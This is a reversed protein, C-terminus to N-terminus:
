AAVSAAITAYGVLGAADAGGPAAWLITTAPSWGHRKNMATADFPDHTDVNAPFAGVPVDVRVGTATSADAIEYLSSPFPLVSDTTGLPNHEPAVVTDSGCAALLFFAACRM